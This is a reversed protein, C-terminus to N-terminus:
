LDGHAAGVRGVGEGPDFGAQFATTQQVRSANIPVAQKTSVDKLPRGQRRLNGHAAGVRGVAEGRDLGAQLAKATGPDLVPAFFIKQVRATDIPVALKTTAEDLSWRQKTRKRSHCSQQPACVAGVSVYDAARDRPDPQHRGRASAYRVQSGNWVLRMGHEHSVYPELLLLANYMCRRNNISVSKM